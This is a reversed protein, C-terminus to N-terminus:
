KKKVEDLDINQIKGGLLFVSLLSIPFLMGGLIFFPVWSVTTIFPVAFMATITGLVASAGGLGALSGVTKGYHFDSALTQINVCFFQYGFLIIAMMLVAMTATTAMTAGIIGPMALCAGVVM